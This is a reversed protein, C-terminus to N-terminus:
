DHAAGRARIASAIMAATTNVRNREAIRAADEYAAAVAAEARAEDREAEASAARGILNRLAHVPGETCMGLPLSGMLLADMEGLREVEALAAALDRELAAIRSAETECQAAWPCVSQMQEDSM